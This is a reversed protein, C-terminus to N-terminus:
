PTLERRVQEVASTCSLEGGAAIEARLRAITDKDRSTRTRAAELAKAGAQRASLGAETLALLSANQAALDRRAEDREETVRKARGEAASVAWWAGAGVALALGLGFAMAAVALAPPATV